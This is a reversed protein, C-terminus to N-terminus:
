PQAGLRDLAKRAEAAVPANPSLALVRRFDAIAEERRGLAEYIHGRTDLTHTDDPRLQLSRDADPLGLAAKGAKLYAWARNNLAGALLPTVNPPSLDIGITLDRIAPEFESRAILVGARMIYAWAAGPDRDIVDSCAQRKTAPDDSRLCEYIPDRQATAVTAGTVLALAALVTRRM